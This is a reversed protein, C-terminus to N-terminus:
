NRVLSFANRVMKLTTADTSHTKSLFNRRKNFISIWTKPQEFFRNVSYPYGNIKPKFNELKNKIKKPNQILIDTFSKGEKLDLVVDNFVEKSMLQRLCTQKENATKKDIWTTQLRKEANQLIM